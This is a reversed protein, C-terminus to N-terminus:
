RRTWHTNTFKKTLHRRIYKYYKMPSWYTYTSYRKRLIRKLNTRAIQSEVPVQYQIKPKFSTLQRPIEEQNKTHTGSGDLGHNEVLSKRPYLSLRNQIFMSAHWLVAWSDVEGRSQRKLMQIYPYAGELDFTKELNQRHIEALLEVGDRCIEKWRNRWTAWGWCDAGRLFYTDEGLVNMDYTFGQISAVKTTNAYIQLGSNCFHLFHKGVVLDDELVIVEEYESLIQDIGALLSNALGMNESRVIVETRSNELENKAVDIVERVILSELLNRPGDVFVFVLSEEFEDNQKLSDILKRLHDPRNFAFIAIPALKLVSECESSAM